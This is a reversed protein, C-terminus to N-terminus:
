SVDWWQNNTNKIVTFGEKRLHEVDDDTDGFTKCDIRTHFPKGTDTCYGKRRCLEYRLQENSMETRILEETSLVPETILIPKIPDVIERVVVLHGTQIDLMPKFVFIDTKVDWWSTRDDNGDHFELTYGHERLFGLDYETRGFICASLEMHFPRSMSTCFRKRRDLEKLLSDRTWPDKM